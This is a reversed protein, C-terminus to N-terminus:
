RKFLPEGGTKHLGKILSAADHVKGFDDKVPEVAPAGEEHSIDEGKGIVRLRVGRPQTPQAKL